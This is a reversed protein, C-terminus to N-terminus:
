SDVFYPSVRREGPVYPFAWDERAVWPRGPEVVSGTLELLRDALCAQAADVDLTSGPLCLSVRLGEVLAELGVLSSPPVRHDLSRALVALQQRRPGQLWRGVSPDTRGVELWGLWTRTAPLDHHDRPLVGLPGHEIVAATLVTTRATASVHACVRVLRERDQLHHTISSTSIGSARSIARVTLGAPGQQELIRDCAAALVAAREDGDILHPM